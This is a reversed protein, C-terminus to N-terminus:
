MYQCQPYDGRFVPTPRFDYCLDRNDNFAAIRLNKLTGIESPIKGTLQNFDLGLTTLKQLNGLSPPINGSLANGRINLTTLERLNGLEFPITGSFENYDLIMQELASLSGLEPILNGSLQSPSLTMRIVRNEDNCTIHDWNCPNPQSDDWTMLVNLPDTLSYKFAILVAADSLPHAGPILSTSLTLALLLTWCVAM